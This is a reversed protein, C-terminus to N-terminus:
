DEGHSNRELYSVLVGFLGGTFVSFCLLWGVFYAFDLLDSSM